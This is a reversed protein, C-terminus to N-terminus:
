RLLMIWRAPPLQESRKATLSFLKMCDPDQEPGRFARLPLASLRTVGEAGAQYNGVPVIRLDDLQTLQELM